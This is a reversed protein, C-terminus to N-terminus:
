SALSKRRRVAAGVFASFGTLLLAMSSPEPVARASVLDVYFQSPGGDSYIIIENAPTQTNLNTTTLLEWQGVGQTFATTGTNGGNGIGLGVRGSEAYVWASVSAFAPGTNPPSIVHVLGMNAGSAEVRIYLEGPDESSPPPPLPPIGNGGAYQQVQTDISGAGNLFVTWDNAASIAPGGPAPLNFAVSNTPGQDEFSHNDITLSGYSTGSVLVVAVAASFLSCVRGRLFFM